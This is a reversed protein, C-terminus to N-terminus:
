LKSPPPPGEPQDQSRPRLSKLAQGLAKKVLPNGEIKRVLNRTAELTKPDLQPKKQM